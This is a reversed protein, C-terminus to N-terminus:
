TDGIDNEDHMYDSLKKRSDFVVENIFLKKVQALEPINYDKISKQYSPIYKGKKEM